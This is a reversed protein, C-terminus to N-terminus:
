KGYKEIIEKFGYDLYNFDHCDSNIVMPAGMEALYDILVPSPYAIDRRGKAMAGTNIEFIPMGTKDILEGLEEPFGSPLKKSAGDNIFKAVISEASNKAWRIYAPDNEDFYKNGKNFVTVLDFHGVIQGKTKELVKSELEYYSEAYAMYDGEFLTEVAKELVQPSEDVNMWLGDKEVHHTSGIVYQYDGNTDCCFDREIGLYIKIDNSYKNQLEMIDHSYNVEEEVGMAYDADQESFQHGSFGLYRYGLSIAKEVMEEPSNRGDCYFTHTHYNSKGHLNAILYKSSM